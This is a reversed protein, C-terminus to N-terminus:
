KNSTQVQKVATTKESSGFNDDSEDSPTRNTDVCEKALLGLLKGKDRFQSESWSSLANSYARKHNISGPPGSNPNFGVEGKSKYGDYYKFFVFLELPSTVKALKEELSRTDTNAERIKEVDEPTLQPRLGENPIEKKEIFAKALAALKRGKSYFQSKTLAINKYSGTGFEERALSACLDPTLVPHKM